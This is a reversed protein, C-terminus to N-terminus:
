GLVFGALLMALAASLIGQIAKGAACPWLPLDTDALLAATQCLVSAGGWGALGAALVFGTRDATLLSITSFLELMGSLLVGATGGISQCPRALISFTLVFACVKLTGTLASEVATVVATSLKEARFAARRFTTKQRQRTSKARFFLGTILAATVHILWLWVGTRFSGFVGVGLVTILFAPNANNCFSLLRTTEEQSLLKRRYLEAATRAGLPYGGLLGLALASAGAGDIGYLAMLGGLPASLWEGFGMSLLLSSVVMFPFLAPIVSRLCLRVGAEATDRVSGDLLLWVAAFVLLLLIANQFPKKM